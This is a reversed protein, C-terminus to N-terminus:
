LRFQDVLTRLDRSLQAVQYSSNAVQEAGTANQESILHISEVNRNIEEAVSTQEEAATAIQTNMQLITDVASTISALSEGAHKADDVTALVRERSQGMSEVANESGEQLTAILTEIEMASEQTRQALTRVEDAVVAFGRGQEGARAAEIAANLALLNTQEAVGKIVDLMSGINESDTRVKGIVDASADVEAALNNISSITKNVIENGKQAEGNAEDAAGSALEASSAVEQVTASMETIASAVLETEQKQQKISDNSKETIEAMQQSSSFLESSSSAIKSIIGHLKESFNNFNQGLEGIEDRTNVPVRMTLDGDGESIDKLIDNTANLPGLIGRIVVTAILTGFIIAAMTGLISVNIAFSSTTQQQDGRIVILRQEEDIIAQLQTRLKDMITKGPGNEMMLAVDDITQDYKNMERRANIEPEAAESIWADVRTQVADLDSQRVGTGRIISSLKKLNVTLSKSGGIYPELSVEQGSLLFGRQGTEMNVLDLTVSTLLLRAQLNNKSLKTEIAALAARISDFINKGVIRSSIFKFNAIAEYGKSVDRRATIEPEAASSLWQEKYESVADWRKGQTPNDSTLRKGKAILDDFVSQGQNYPELYNEKGAIMFGRQGTEMDIMAAGVNKANIIVEYTHNVWKSSEVLSSISSYVVLSVVAMMGLVVGYGGALKLRLNMSNLLKM